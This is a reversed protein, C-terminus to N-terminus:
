RKANVESQMRRAIDIIANDESSVEFTKWAKNDTFEKLDAYLTDEAAKLTNAYRTKSIFTDKAGETKFEVRFKYPRSVVEVSQEKAM